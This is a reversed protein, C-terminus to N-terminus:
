LYPLLLVEVMEGRNYERREEPLVILGNAVSFSSLRFSEQAGLPMVGEPTVSAKLFQTLAIKKSFNKLLPLSRKELLVKRGTFVEIAATVYQYFCTLVSAPNGPLGFVMRGEKTGAYLPKGPRQAVKHFRQQVGCAKTAEIVFDYDGVSVGGSLLILDAYQLATQLSAAIETLDDPALTFYVRHIGLQSLAAKLMVSNSEYVQGHQLPLGPKVLEKGTAIIHVVPKPFVSVDTIGVGTLFGVAAPTMVTGKPLAIEGQRIEDGEKRVNSGNVLQDDQVILKNGEVTTKEQMVVTDVGPQVAAGTFIRIAQGPEIEVAATDGAAVEGTIIFENSQRYDQYRFAYGDMASQNFNPISVRASVNEALVLGCASALPTSVPQLPELSDRISQLAASVSIMIAFIQKESSNNGKKFPSRKLFFNKPDRFACLLCLCCSSSRQARQPEHKKRGPKIEKCVTYKGSAHL